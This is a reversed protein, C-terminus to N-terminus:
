FEDQMNIFRGNSRADSVTEMDPRTNRSYIKLNKVFNLSVERIYDFGSMM